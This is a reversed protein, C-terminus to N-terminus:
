KALAELTITGGQPFHYQINMTTTMNPIPISPTSSLGDKFEIDRRDDATGTRANGNQFWAHVWGADPGNVSPVVWAQAITAYGVPCNLRIWGSGPEIVHNDLMAERRRVPKPPPAGAIQRALAIIRPIQAIRRNGPCVKGYASSWREGGAAMYGPVGLRHYGVGRRGPCSDPIMELPISHVRSIWSVLHALSNIQEPTWAPVQSADNTNWRPFGTGIDATEISVLHHNGDANAPARLDTDVWQICQGDHGVGFHSASSSRRFFSDTGWLTGVMTHLCIIDHSQM